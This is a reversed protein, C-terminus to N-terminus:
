FVWRDSETGGIEEQAMTRFFPWIKKQLESDSRKEVSSTMLMSSPSFPLANGFYFRAM